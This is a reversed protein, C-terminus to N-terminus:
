TVCDDWFVLAYQYTLFLVTNYSLLIRISCTDSTDSVTHPHFPRSVVRAAERSRWGISVTHLLGTVDAQAKEDHFATKTGHNFIAASCVFLAHDFARGFLLCCFLETTSIVVPLVFLACAGGHKFDRCSFCWPQACHAMRRSLPM